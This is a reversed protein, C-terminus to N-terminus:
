ALHKHFQSISERSLLSREYLRDAFVDDDQNSWRKLDIATVTGLDGNDCNHYKSTKTTMVRDGVHIDTGGMRLSEAGLQGARIRVEQIAANVEAVERRTPAFCVHDEPKHGAELAALYEHVARVVREDESCSASERPAADPLASDDALRKEVPKM